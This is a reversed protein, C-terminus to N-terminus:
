VGGSRMEPMMVSDPTRRGLATLSSSILIQNQPTPSLTFVYSKGPQNLNGRPLYIISWTSQSHDLTRSMDTTRARAKRRRFCAQARVACCSSEAVQLHTLVMDEPRSLCELHLRNSAVFTLDAGYDCYGIHLVHWMFKRILHSSHTGNNWQEVTGSSTGGSRMGSSDLSLVM